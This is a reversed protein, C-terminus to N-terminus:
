RAGEVAIQMSGTSGNAPDYVVIRLVVKGWPLGLTLRMPIRNGAARLRQYQQPPFRFTLTRGLSTVAKGEADYAVMVCVCDIRSRSTGDAGVLFTLGVPNVNLDMAYPHEGRKVAVADKRTSDDMSAVGRVELNNAPLVRAQFLIQTSPPVGLEAAETVATPMGSTYSAPQMTDAGYYARRYGLQYKGGEVRVQIRHVANGSEGKEESPVYSLAYYNSGESLADAIAKQLGNSEYVARGGTEEALVDMSMHEAGTQHQEAATDQAIRTKGGGLSSDFPDARGYQQGSETSDFMSQNLVGRADVPYVAVRAAALLEATARVKGAFSGNFQQKMQESPDATASVFRIPFSGCLWVLNKRGPIGSLYRGLEQFAELTLDVRMGTQATNSEATFAQLPGLNQVHADVM